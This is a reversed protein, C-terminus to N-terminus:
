LPAQQFVGRANIWLAREIAIGRSELPYYELYLHYLGAKELSVAYEVFGQESTRLCPAGDELGGSVGEAAAYSFLDLDIDRKGAPVPAYRERYRPYANARGTDGGGPDFGAYHASFDGERDRTLLFFSLLAAAIVLVIVPVKYKVM